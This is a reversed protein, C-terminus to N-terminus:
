LRLILYVGVLGIIFIITAILMVQFLKRTIMHRALPNRGIATIASRVGAFLLSGAMVTVVFLVVLSAYVRAAAVPRNTVAFAAQALFRPVGNVMTSRYYPNHAVSVDVVVRGIAIQRTSGVTTKGDVRSVGDFSGIAKGVISQQQTDARMGIGSISSTTILDGANIAGNEDSVLVEYRGVTAVFVPNALSTDNIAIPADNPQIVVGLMDAATSPTVPAVRGSPKTEVRVIMGVKVSASADYTQVVGQAHAVAPFVAIVTFCSILFDFIRKHSVM